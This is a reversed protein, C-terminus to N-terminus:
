AKSILSKESVNLTKHLSNFPIRLCYLLLLIWAVRLFIGSAILVQIALPVKLYQRYFRYMSKYHHIIKKTTYADSRYSHILKAHSVYYIKWGKRKARYYWDIDECYLFYNEDLYGVDMFAERRFIIYAGSVWDVRRINEHNWNSLLYRKSFRNNPFLRTLLSTRNFLATLYTPFRRCTPQVIGDPNLIKEEPQGQKM